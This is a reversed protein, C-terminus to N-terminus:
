VNGEFFWLFNGKVTVPNNNPKFAFNQSYLRLDRLANMQVIKKLRNYWSLFVLTTVHPFKFLKNKMLVIDTRKQQQQSTCPTM